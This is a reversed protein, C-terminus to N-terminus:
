RGHRRGKFGGDDNNCKDHCRAVHCTGGSSHVAASRRVAAEPEEVCGEEVELDEVAVERDEVACAVVVCATSIV